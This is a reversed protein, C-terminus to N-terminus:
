TAIELTARTRNGDSTMAVPKLNLQKLQTNLM